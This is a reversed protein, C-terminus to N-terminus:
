VCFKYRAYIIGTLSLKAADSHMIKHMIKRMIKHM